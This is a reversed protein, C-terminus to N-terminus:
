AVCLTLAAADRGAAEAASRVTKVTWEVLYPDALQLIFGDARRGVLDLAKPGYGAVWVPLAWGERLWPIRIETGEVGVARGGALGRVVAVSDPLRTLTTPPRGQV